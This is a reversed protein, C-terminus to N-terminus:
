GGVWGAEQLIPVPDRERGYSPRPTTNVIRAGRAGLNFFSYVQVGGKFVKRGARRHVKCKVKQTDDCNPTPRSRSNTHSLCVVKDDVDNDDNDGDCDDDNDGGDCDDDDNGGDCGDDNDGGDCDDDDNGGDCDDDTMMMMVVMVILIMMIVVMVIMMMTMMMM